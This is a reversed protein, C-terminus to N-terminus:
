KEEKIFLDICKDCMLWSDGKEDCYNHVKSRLGCAECSDWLDIHTKLKFRRKGKRLIDGFNTM